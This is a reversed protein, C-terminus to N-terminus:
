KRKGHSYLTLPFCLSSETGLSLRAENRPESSDPFSVLSVRITIVTLDEVTKFLFWCTLDQSAVSSVYMCVYMCVCVYM